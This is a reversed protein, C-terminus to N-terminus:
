NEKKMWNGEFECKRHEGNLKVYTEIIKEEQWKGIAKLKKDGLAFNKIKVYDRAFEAEHENVRDTVTLIKFRVENIRDADQIVDSVTDDKLDQIEAYLSPDMNTLDFNYEGTQTNLLLGGEFKTEKEDSIERAADAFTLEGAEIKAKADEIKQKAKDIESQPIEPRLLIHRVDYEQGRIKELWIIHFGFDTEFPDSIEGEELAFAVDRFEKVNRPNSRNMPPLKGGTRKSGKDDSYLVAKSAFSGGNELVDTRFENLKDIVKQKEEETTKPIVVIQAIKLETGIIPREEKPIDNYYQRVEEPTVEIPDLVKQQMKSALSNNKNIEYTDILLEDYSKKSYYNVLKEKSGIQQSLANLQQETNSRIEADNVIISDQIAQHVYLKSELLQGIMQCRTIDKTSIGAAESQKFQTDIDSDLVIFNGVVAAVGDIKIRGDKNVVFKDKTEKKEEEEIIEQAKAKFSLLMLLSLVIYKVKILFKLNNTILQM